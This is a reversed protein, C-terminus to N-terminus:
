PRGYITDNWVGSGLTTEGPIGTIGDGFVVPGTAGNVFLAHGSSATNALAHGQGYITGGAIIFSSSAGTVYVGGGNTVATNDSIEANGQMTFTGNAVYV